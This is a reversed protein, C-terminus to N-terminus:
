NYVNGMVVKTLFDNMDNLPLILENEKTLLDEYVLRLVTPFSVNQNNKDQAKELLLTLAM